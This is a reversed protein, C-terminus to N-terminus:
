PLTLPFSTKLYHVVVQKTLDRKGQVSAAYGAAQQIHIVRSISQMSQTVVTM